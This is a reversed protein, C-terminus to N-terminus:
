SHTETGVIKIVVCAELTVFTYEELLCCAWEYPGLGGSKKMKVQIPETLYLMSGVILTVMVHTVYVNVCFVLLHM